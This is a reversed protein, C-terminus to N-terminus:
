NLRINDVHISGAGTHGFVGIALRKISNRQAITGNYQWNTAQSKWNSAGLNFTVTNWGAQLPQTISEHWAWSSGTSVAIAIQTPGGPNYLELTVTSKASWDENIGGGGPGNNELFAKGYGPAHFTMLLAYSGQSVFASSLSLGTADSYSAAPQWNGIAECGDWPPADFPVGSKARMRSSFNQIISATGSDEPYYVTFHDYDPYLSGDDQHGSLLWFGVGDGAMSDVRNYWDTYIRNRDAMGTNPPSYAQFVDFYVFGNYNSGNRKVQVGIQRIDTLTGGWAAVQAPTIKVQVWGGPVLTVDDGDAWQYWSNSKVYFEARLNNPSGSPVHVWASLYQYASFNQPSSYDKKIGANPAQTRLNVIGRLSGNGDQSPSSVRSISTFGWDNVFGDTGSSFNALTLPGSGQNRDVYWGFEGGYVPKGIVDHADNVHEQIWLMAGAENMAWYNPYLHYSCVDIWPSQHNRIYDAGLEGNYRWDSGMNPRSYWGESGTSVLHNSDISKIFAAMEDIWAQLKNGSLDSTARPENALEWIVISPDNKYAVGTYTNVRNLVYSVYNKYWQKCLADTYFDDHSNATPSWEVYKDMGGFNSWNDVLPLIMRIGSQNAKYLVYDLKRFSNEDYVGPAPQFCFGNNSVGESSGWTRFVNLGLGAADAFVEDVMAQSQYSLYYQNAHSFYYTAGNLEFQNERTRVFGINQADAGWVGVILIFVLIM